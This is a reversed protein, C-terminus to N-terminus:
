TQGGSVLNLEDTTLNRIGDIPRTMDTEQRDGTPVATLLRGSHEFLHLRGRAAAAHDPDCQCRALPLQEAIEEPPWAKWIVSVARPM